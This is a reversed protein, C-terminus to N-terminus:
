KEPRKQTRSNRGLSTLRERLIKFVGIIFLISIARM